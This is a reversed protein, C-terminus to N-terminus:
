SSGRAQAQPTDKTPPPNNNEQGQDILAAERTAAKFRLGPWLRLLIVCLSSSRLHTQCRLFGVGSPLLGGNTKPLRRVRSAKPRISAESCRLWCFPPMWQQCLEYGDHWAATRKSRGRTAELALAAPQYFQFPPQIGRKNCSHGTGTARLHPAPDFREKGLQLVMGTILWVIGSHDGM